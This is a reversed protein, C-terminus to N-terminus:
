DNTFDENFVAFLPRNRLVRVIYQKTTFTRGRLEIFTSTWEGLDGVQISGRRLILRHDLQLLVYRGYKDEASYGLVITEFGLIIVPDLIIQVFTRFRLRRQRKAVTILEPQDNM